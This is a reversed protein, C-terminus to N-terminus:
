AESFLGHGIERTAMKMIPPAPSLRCSRITPLTSAVATHRYREQADVRAITITLSTLINDQVVVTMQLKLNVDASFVVLIVAVHRM